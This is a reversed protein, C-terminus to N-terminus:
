IHYIFQIEDYDEIIEPQIDLSQLLYVMKENDRLVNACLKKIGKKQATKFLYNLMFSAIGMNQFDEDVIFALEYYDENANFAYRGEAVIRETHHDEKILGVISLSQDYDVNLYSQMKKHPMSRIPTFFRFYRSEDSFKYFLRRMKEEDSPKIPRFKIELGNGFNKITELFFPYNMAREKIYIQDPYLYGLRKAEDVLMERHDPHAIDIMEITRERISKGFVNAIGYETVVYRTSGHTSRILEQNDTHKIVINSHGAQDTSRLAVIAKGGRSHAASLSFYLKSDFGSISIDKASISVLDGSMDIKNVNLIGIFKQIQPILTQYTVNLIPAFEFVPNDAVYEYLKRSGFCSSTTVPKQRRLGSREAIAGSEILNIIWDSIIHTYIKLDKKSHLHNAIADFLKGIQLSLTSGNEILNAVHWAIKDLVDDYPKVTKEILPLESEILYNVHDMHITTEGHTRPVNPNIEAIVIPSKKLVIDSVDMVTGLNLNGKRDPPSTQIIAIDVGIVGSVFLHRLEAIHTPIFDILGKRLKKGISEGVTFTKLRYKYHALEDFSFLNEPTTLQIIELDTLNAHEKEQLQIITQVPTAPGSSIFIRNGPQIIDCLTDFSITPPKKKKFM